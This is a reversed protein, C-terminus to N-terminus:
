PVRLDMVANVLAPWRNRGQALDIWDMAGCGVRLFDMTDDWRPRPRGHPRKRESKRVLIRYIARTVVM